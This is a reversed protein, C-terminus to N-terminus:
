QVVSSAPLHVRGPTHRPLPTIANVRRALEADAPASDLSLYARYFLMALYPRKQDLAHLTEGRFLVPLDVKMRKVDPAEPHESVAKNAWQAIEGARRAREEIPRAM